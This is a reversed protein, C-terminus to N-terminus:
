GKVIANFSCVDYCVGCRTCREVIIKHAIKKKGEIAGSPCNNKCIGCATCKEENIRFEILNKCVGAPCKKEEIHKRYEDRFYKITSLVSNPATQGLGCLSGQKVTMAVQELKDIHTPTGKGETIETLMRLLHQSGVRCPTCKGCSESHTFELFYKAIDVMCSDEDMVVMGGSGMISGAETLSEYDVPLDLLNAPLCGGSPGGTQVAKFKKGDPIGGGIDYIIQRLKIGMPVEVLGSNAIKGTLAFVATGKSTETGISAYWESGRTIIVPVSALTKVNNIVTPKSRFGSQAPYPPRSCPMARKGELAAILGTEEGGVFAGAGEKIGISFNFDSGFINKGLFRQEKAEKVAIRFRRIALPYEARVYIYGVAAGIAYAAIIMGEIVSHPDAEIISRDMFAGPDGEDGNCIVYKETDVCKRCIRWKHATPFGAGGRGRLGSRKVEDIVQEPTMKLLAKKIANYGGVALYDDIKEPNIHGCNSLIIRQQEKYFPIQQYTSIAKGTTPDHYYLRKLPQGDRLHSSVLESVDKMDVKAYFIGEPEIVVIPGQQCFGHCGTFEVSVNKLGLRKIEDTLAAYIQDAKASVCGTGQCVFIVRQDYFSNNSNENKMVKSKM